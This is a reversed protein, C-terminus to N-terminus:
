RRLAWPLADRVAGGRGRSALVVCGALGPSLVALAAAGPVADGAHVLGLLAGNEAALLGLLGPVMGRRALMALLGALLIALSLALGERTGLQVGAGAALVAAVALMALGGGAAIGVAGSMSPRAADGRGPLAGGAAHGMAARLLTPLALARGALAGLALLWLHPGGAGGWATAAAACALLGGQWALLRASATTANRRGLPLMLGLLLMAVGALNPVADALIAESL